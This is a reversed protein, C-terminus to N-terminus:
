HLTYAKSFVLRHYLPSLTPSVLSQHIHNGKTPELTMSIHHSTYYLRSLITVYGLIVKDLVLSVTLQAM